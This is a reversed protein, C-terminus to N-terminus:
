SPPLMQWSGKINWMNPPNHRNWEAETVFKDAALLRQTYLRGNLHDLEHQFLAALYGTARLRAPRAEEDFFTVTVDEARPVLGMMGPVSLCGEWVEQRGSSATIAPNFLARFPLEQLNPLHPDALCEVISLSHSLGVQPASLGMGNAKRMVTYMEQLM